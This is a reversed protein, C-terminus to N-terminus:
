AGTTAMLTERLDDLTAIESFCAVVADAQAFAADNTYVSPSVICPLGAGKASLLGNRSDELAVCDRPDLGLGALALNFVDPAPKKNAVEDGAAIVEFVDSAARGLTAEILRDVNPRNTTTAVALRCGQGAADEILEIVGPRLTAAGRAILDGYRATKRLHIRAILATDPDQRLFNRVYAAMREKGGTTKLLERYLDRSWNWGLGFEAFTDNFARLHVDETESLTGDVDFILAKIPM